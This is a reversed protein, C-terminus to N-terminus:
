RTPGPAEDSGFPGFSGGVCVDAREGVIENVAAAVGPFAPNNYDHGCLLKRTKPL